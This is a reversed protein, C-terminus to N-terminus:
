AVAEVPEGVEEEAEGEAEEQELPQENNDEERIRTIQRCRPPVLRELVKMM